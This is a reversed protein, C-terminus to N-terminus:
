CYHTINRKLTWAAVVVEGYMTPCFDAIYVVGCTGGAGAARSSDIFIVKDLLGTLMGRYEDSIKEPLGGFLHHIRGPVNM